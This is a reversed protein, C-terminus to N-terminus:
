SLSTNIIRDIVFNFVKENIVPAKSINKKLCIRQFDDKKQIMTIRGNRLLYNDVSGFKGAFITYAPIGLIAAERNMTGGASIVLDSNAILQAGNVSKNAIFLDKFLQSYELRQNETRTFFVVQVNKHSLLYAILEKFIPNKFNHYAAM